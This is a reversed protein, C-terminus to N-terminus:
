CYRGRLASWTLKLINPRQLAHHPDFVDYGRKAAGKLYQGALVGLLLTSVARKDVSGQFAKAKELHLRAVSGIQEIIHSIKDANKRRLADQGGLNNADMVDQPLMLRNERAHFLVARMIGALSWAIGVHQAASTSADDRVDLIELALWLLRASTGEAYTELALMDKPAEESMDAARCNLLEDFHVRNLKHFEVISALGEVVPNGQPEAGGEYILAIMERWWELKIQGILAESTAERIRSVEANFAYLALLAGRVMPPAFLATLYRDRDERKVLDAIYKTSEASIL